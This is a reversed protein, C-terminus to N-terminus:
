KYVKSIMENSVNVSPVYFHRKDIEGKKDEYGRVEFSQEKIKIYKLQKAKVYLDLKTFESILLQYSADDKVFIADVWFFIFQNGVLLSLRRLINGVEAAVFFFVGETFSKTVKGPKWIKGNYNFERTKKALVGLSALRTKKSIKNKNCGEEFIEKSIFGNKFALYWYASNIDIEFCNKFVEGPKCNGFHYYSIDQRDFYFDKRLTKEVHRKVKNIFYLERKPIRDGPMYVYNGRESYIKITLTTAEMKFPVGEKKLLDVIRLDNVSIFGM